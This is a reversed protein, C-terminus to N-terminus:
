SKGEESRSFVLDGSEQGVSTKELLKRIEPLAFSLKVAVNCGNNYKEEDNLFKWYGVHIGIVRWGGGDEIIVPAGSQGSSTHLYHRFLREKVIDQSTNPQSGSEDFHNQPMSFLSRSRRQEEPQDGNATFTVTNGDIKHPMHYMQGVVLTETGGKEYPFHLPFGCIFGRNYPFADGTALSGFSNLAADELWDKHALQVSTKAVCIVGIDYPFQKNPDADTRPNKIFDDHVWTFGDADKDGSVTRNLLSKPAKPDDIDGIPQWKSLVQVKQYSNCDRCYLVHGATVFYWHSSSDYGEGLYTHPLLFCSGAGRGPTCKCTTEVQFIANYPSHYRDYDSVEERKDTQGGDFTAREAGGQPAAM